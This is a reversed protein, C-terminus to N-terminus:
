LGLSIKIPLFELHFMRAIGLHRGKGRGFEVADIGLLCLVGFVQNQVGACIPGGRGFFFERIASQRLFRQGLFIVIGWGFCEEAGFGLARGWFGDYGFRPYGITM